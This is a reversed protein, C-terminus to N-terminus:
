FLSWGGGARLNVRPADHAWLGAYAFGVEFTLWRSSRLRRSSVVRGELVWDGYRPLRSLTRVYLGQGDETLWPRPQTRELTVELRRGDAFREWTARQGMILGAGIPAGLLQGDLTHGQALPIHVYLLGQPRQQGVARVDGDFYELTLIGLRQADRHTAVRISAAIASNQEPEQALDRLDYSNDERMYEFSLEVGRTPLVWRASLSALQNALDGTPDTAVEGRDGFGAKLLGEFPKSWADWRNAPGRWPSHYFRSAGVELGPLFAPMWSAALGVALRRTGTPGAVAFSDPGTVSSWRSQSLPGLLYRGTVRGLVPIRLGAAPTGVFLHPFGGANHGLVAPYHDIPGWAETRTGLGAMLWDTEIQVSSEGGVVRAYARRGFRQPLDISNPYPSHGVGEVGSPILPYDLNQAVFGVPALTATIPGVRATAALGLAANVGRGQWLPGDNDGRPFGSNGTVLAATGLAARPTRLSAAWPHGTDGARALLAEVDRATFPRAHWPVDRIVGATVLARLYREVDSGAAAGLAASRPGTAGQWQAALAAPALAVCTVLAPIARVISRM